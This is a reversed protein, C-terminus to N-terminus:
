LDNRGQFKLIFQTATLPNVFTFMGNPLMPEFDWEDEDLNKKCWRWAPKWCGTPGTLCVEILSENGKV